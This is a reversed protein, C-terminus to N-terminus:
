RQNTVDLRDGRSGIPGVVLVLVHVRACLLSSAVGNLACMDARIASKAAM